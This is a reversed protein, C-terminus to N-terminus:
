YLFEISEMVQLILADVKAADEPTIKYSIKYPYDTMEDNMSAIAIYTNGKGEFFYIKAYYGTRLSGTEDDNAARQYWTFQKGSVNSITFDTMVKMAKEKPNISTRWTPKVYKYM